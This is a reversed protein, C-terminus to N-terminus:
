VQVSWELRKWWVRKVQVYWPRPGISTLSNLSRIHSGDKFTYCKYLREIGRHRPGLRRILAHSVM